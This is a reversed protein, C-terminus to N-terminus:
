DFFHKVKEVLESNISCVLAQGKRECTILGANQLEKLHHSVTSRSLDMCECARTFAKQVGCCESEPMTKQWYYIMKFLNLRQESSLAKFVKAM